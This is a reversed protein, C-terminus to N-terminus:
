FVSARVIAYFSKIHYVGMREMVAGTVGSWNEYAGLVPTGKSSRGTGPMRKWRRPAKARAKREILVSKGM